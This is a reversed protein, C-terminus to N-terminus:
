GRNDGKLQRYIDNMEDSTLYPEFQIKDLNGGCRICYTIADALYDIPYKAINGACANVYSKRLQQEDRTIYIPYYGLIVYWDCVITRKDFKSEYEM